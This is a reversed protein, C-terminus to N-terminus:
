ESSDSTTESSNESLPIGEDESNEVKQGNVPKTFQPNIHWKEMNQAHMLKEQGEYNIIYDVPGTQRIIEYPGKWFPQLKNRQQNKIKVFDGPLYVPLRRKKNAWKNRQSQTKELTQAALKQMQYLAQLQDKFQTPFESVPVILSLPKPSHRYLAQHPSIGL